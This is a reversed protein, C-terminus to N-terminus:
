SKGEKRKRQFNIEDRREASQLALILRSKSFAGVFDSVIIHFDGQGEIYIILVEYIDSISFEDTVIISIQSDIIMFIEIVLRPM